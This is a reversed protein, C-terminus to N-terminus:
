LGLQGGMAGPPMRPPSLLPMNWPDMGGKGVGKRWPLSSSSARLRRASRTTCPPEWPTLTPPVVPSGPVWVRSSLFRAMSTTRSWTTPRTGTIGPVPASRRSSVRSSVRKAWSAPAWPAKTM